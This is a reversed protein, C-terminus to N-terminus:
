IIKTDNQQNHKKQWQTNQIHSFTGESFEQAQQKCFLPDVNGAPRWLPLVGSSKTIKGVYHWSHQYEVQWTGVYAFAMGGGQWTIVYHWYRALVVTNSIAVVEVLPRVAAIL